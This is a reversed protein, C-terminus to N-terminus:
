ASAGVQTLQQALRNQAKIVQTDVKINPNINANINTHQWEAIDPWNKVHIGISAFFLASKAPLREGVLLPVRTRSFGIVDRLPRVVLWYAVLRRLSFDIKSTSISWDFLRRHLTNALPLRSEVLAHLRQYTASTGAVLTPGLERRDIDRTDINEPFNLKFGALLWPSLLYRVHGSAAFARAALAEERENLAELKVLKRGQALMEAHSLKQFDVNGNENLRYFVFATHEPEAVSLQKLYDIPQTNKISAYAHLTEDKYHSLGRVDAYIILKQSLGLNLVQDVQLQSEAFIFAPQLAKLLASVKTEAYAPDQYSPNLPASIGGLWHAAISILLAEPRPHSLLFLTDGEKFGKEKLLQVLQLLEQHLESWRKEHWIGLQKHRLAINLPKDFAQFSLLNPLTDTIM